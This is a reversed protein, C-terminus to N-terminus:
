RLSPHIWLDTVYEGLTNDPFDSGAVIACVREPVTFSIVKEERGSTMDAVAWYQLESLPFDGLARIIECANYYNQKVTLDNNWSSSIKYKVVLGTDGIPTISLLEGYNSSLDGPIKNQIGSLGGSSEAPAFSEVPALVDTTPAPETKLKQSSGLVVVGVVFILLVWFWWRRFVPTKMEMKIISDAAVAADKGPQDPEPQRLAAAGEMVAVVPDREQRETAARTGKGSFHDLKIITKLHNNVEALQALEYDSNQRLMEVNEILTGIAYMYITLLGAVLVALVIVGTMILFYYESSRFFAGALTIGAVSLSLFLIWFIFKAIIQIQRGPNNFM